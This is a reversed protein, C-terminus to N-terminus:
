SQKETDNGNWIGAVQAQSSECIFIPLPLLQFRIRDQSRSHSTNPWAHETKGDAEAKGCRSLIAHRLDRGILQCLSLFSGHLFAIRCLLDHSCFSTTIRFHILRLTSRVVKVNM